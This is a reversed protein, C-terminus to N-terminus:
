EAYNHLGGALCKFDKKSITISKQTEYQWKNCTIGITHEEISIVEYIGRRSHIHIKDGIKFLDITPKVFLEKYKKNVLYDIKEEKKSYIICKNYKEHILISYDLPNFHDNITTYKSPNLLEYKGDEFICVKGEILEPLHLVSALLINNM